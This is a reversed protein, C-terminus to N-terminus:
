DRQPPRFEVRAAILDRDCPAVLRVPTDPERGDYGAFLTYDACGGVRTALRVLQGEGSLLRSSWAVGADGVIEVSAPPGGNVVYVSAFGDRAPDESACGAALPLFALLALARRM